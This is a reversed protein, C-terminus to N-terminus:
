SLLNAFPELSFPKGDLTEQWNRKEFNDILVDKELDTKWKIKKRM